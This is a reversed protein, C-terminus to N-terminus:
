PIAEAKIMAGSYCPYNLSYEATLNTLDNGTFEALNM